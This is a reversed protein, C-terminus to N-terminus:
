SLKQREIGLRDSQALLSCGANKGIGSCGGFSGLRQGDNKLAVSGGAEEAHRRTLPFNSIAICPDIAKIV